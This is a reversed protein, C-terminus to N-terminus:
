KEDERSGDYVMTNALGESWRYVPDTEAEDKASPGEAHTAEEPSAKLHGAVAALITPDILM